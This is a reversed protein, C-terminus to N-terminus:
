AFSTARQSTCHPRGRTRCREEFFGLFMQGAADIRWYPSETGDAARRPEDGAGPARRHGVDVAVAIDVIAEPTRQNGSAWGTAAATLRRKGRFWSRRVSRLRTSSALSTLRAKGLVSNTRNTSPYRAVMLASRGARAAVWRSISKLEVAAVVAV